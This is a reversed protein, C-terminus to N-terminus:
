FHHERFFLNEIRIQRPNKSKRELFSTNKRFFSKPKFNSIDPFLTLKVPRQSLIRYNPITGGLDPRIILRTMNSLLTFSSLRADM